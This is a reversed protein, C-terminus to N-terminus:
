VLEELRSRSMDSDDVAPLRWIEQSPVISLTRGVTEQVESGFILTSGMGEIPVIRCSLRVLGDRAPLGIFDLVEYVVYELALRIVFFDGVVLESADSEVWSEFFMGVGYCALGAFDVSRALCVSSTLPTLRCFNESPQSSGTAFDVM